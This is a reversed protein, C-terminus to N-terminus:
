RKQDEDKFIEKVLDIDSTDFPRNREPHWMIGFIKKNYHKVAEIAGDESVASVILEDVSNKSCYSHYSNKIVKERNMTLEHMVAVHGKVQELAVGFYDQIVQMGRCVGLLPIDEAVALSVLFSEVNDREQANGGYKVLNNGGTIIIGSIKIKDILLRVAELSNPLLLPLFGCCMVFGYWNQDICDRTENYDPVHEVRQTLALIKM